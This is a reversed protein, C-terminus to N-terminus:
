CKPISLHCIQSSHSCFLLLAVSLSFSSCLSVHSLFKTHINNLVCFHAFVDCEERQKWWNVESRWGWQSVTLGDCFAQVSLETWWHLKLQFVYVDTCFHKLCREPVSHQNQKLWGVKYGKLPLNGDLWHGCVRDELSFKNVQESTQYVDTLNRCCLSIM